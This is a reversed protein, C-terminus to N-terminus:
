ATNLQANTEQDPVNTVAEHVAQAFRDLNNRNLSGINVRGNPLLYIHCNDALYAAQKGTFLHANHANFQLLTDL